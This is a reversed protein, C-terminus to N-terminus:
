EVRRRRTLFVVTGLGAAMLTWIQLEPVPSAELAPDAEGAGTTGTPEESMALAALPVSAAHVGGTASRPGAAYLGAQSLAAFSHAAGATLTSPASGGPEGFEPGLAIAHSSGSALTLVCAMAVTYVFM